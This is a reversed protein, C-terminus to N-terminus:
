QALEKIYEDITLWSESSCEIVLEKLEAMPAGKLEDASYGIVDILYNLLTNNNM